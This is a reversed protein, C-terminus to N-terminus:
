IIKQNKLCTISTNESAIAKEILDAKVVPDKEKDAAERFQIAENKLDQAASNYNDAQKKKYNDEISNAEMKSSNVEESLLNIESQNVQEVDDAMKLQSKAKKKEM